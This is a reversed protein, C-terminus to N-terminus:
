SVKPLGISTRISEFYLYFDKLSISFANEFSEEFNKTKRFDIYFDLMAQFGTNYVIVETAYRGITYPYLYRQRENPTNFKYESLPRNLSFFQEYASRVKNYELGNASNYFITGAWDATGELFWAPMEYPNAQHPSYNFKPGMLINYQVAHFYEHAGVASGHINGRLSNVNVIIFSANESNSCAQISNTKDEVGCINDSEPINLRLRKIESKVWLASTSVFTYYDNELYKGLYKVAELEGDVLDNIDKKNISPEIYLHYKSNNEVQSKKWKEFEMHSGIAIDSRNVSKSWKIFVNAPKATITPQPTPAVPKVLVVIKWVTKNNIKTCKFKQSNVLKIQNVKTCKANNKIEAAIAPTNFISFALALSLAVNKKM